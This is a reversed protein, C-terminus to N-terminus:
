ASKDQEAKLKDEKDWEILQRSWSRSTLEDHGQSATVM